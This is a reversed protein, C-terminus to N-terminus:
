DVGGRLTVLKKELRRWERDGEQEKDSGAEAKNGGHTSRARRKTSAADAQGEGNDKGKAERRGDKKNEGM